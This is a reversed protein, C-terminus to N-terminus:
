TNKALFNILDYVRYRGLSYAKLASECGLCSTLVVKVGTEKISKRKSKFVNILKTYFRFKFLGNLGCCKDFGEMEIYELNKCNNLLSKINEYNDIHCPKHFTVKVGKKLNFKANNEILYEYINKVKIQALYDKLEESDVWKAYNKLSKECSACTTLIEKIEYKKLINVYNKISKNFGVLDGRSFLSIGCCSFDPNVVEIGIDNMIKIVDKDTKFRSACGGFYLVKKEFHKSKGRFRFLSFIKPILGFVLIRQLLSKLKEIKHMNFYENKAAVIIDLTEVGSPCNKACAGCKLCLDLYKNITPSMEFRGDLYGKLMIFQGRSVCCDNGTVKYIPCEGQCIGCRSCKHIEEKFDSLRKM